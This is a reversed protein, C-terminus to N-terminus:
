CLDEELRKQLLGKHATRSHAPIDVSQRQGDLMQEASWLTTWGGIHGSPHNQLTQRQRYYARVMCTETQQCTGSSTGISGCPLQDQKAGLRQDQARLLLHPSAEESVQKRFGPGKQETLLCPGKTFFLPSSLSKYLKFKDTFVVTNCRWIRNLRALNRSHTAM